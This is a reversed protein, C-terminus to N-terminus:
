GGGCSRRGAAGAIVLLSHKVWTTGPLLVRLLSNRFALIHELKVM